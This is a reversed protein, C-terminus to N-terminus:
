RTSAGKRLAEAGGVIEMIETTISDQRERNVQRTLVKILEEANDTAAKMARQRATHESAAAELLANYVAAELYQPILTRLFSADDPELEPVTEGGAEQLVGTPIPLLQSAAVEQRAASVFRTSVVELVEGERRESLLFSAIERANEYRPKDSFGSFLRLVPVGRFRFFSQCKRGVAVIRADAGKDRYHRYRRLAFRLVNVNYGGCLGRDAAVVLTMVARPDEVDAVLGAGRAVQRAAQAVAARLEAQYPRTAAIRAQARVIQSSAILEMARTIKKTAQISRIRRRLAREEAKGV